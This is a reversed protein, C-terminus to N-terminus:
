LNLAKNIVREVGLYIPSDKRVNITGLDMDLKLKQLEQLMEPAAAILHANAKKEQEISVREPETRKRMAIWSEGMLQSDDPKRLFGGITIIEGNCEIHNTDHQVNWEGKTGKFQEM